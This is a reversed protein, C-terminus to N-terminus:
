TCRHVRQRQLTTVPDGDCRFKSAPFVRTEWTGPEDEETMDHAVVGDTADAGEGKVPVDGHGESMDLGEAIPFSHMEHSYDRVARTNAHRRM